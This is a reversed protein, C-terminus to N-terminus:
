YFGLGWSLVVGYLSVISQDVLFADIYDETRIVSYLSCKLLLPVPSGSPARRDWGHSIWQQFRAHSSSVRLHIAPVLSVFYRSSDRNCM